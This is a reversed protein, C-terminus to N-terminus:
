KAGAKEENPSWLFLNAALEAQNLADDLANHTHPSKPSVAPHLNHRSVDSMAQKAKTAYVSKLDLCGSHGFPSQGFYKMLYWHVWMWDFSGPYAVMIPTAGFPTTNLIFGVLKTMAAAPTLGNFILRGRDLGNVRLAEKDFKDSIPKLECYLRKRDEAPTINYTTKYLSGIEVIGFSLMSYEGPIPGDTEVDISYYFDLSM